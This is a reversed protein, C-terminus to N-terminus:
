QRSKAPKPQVRINAPALYIREQETKEPETSFFGTVFRHKGSKALEREMEQYQAALRNLDHGHEESIRHHTARVETIIPDDKM